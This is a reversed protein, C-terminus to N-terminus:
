ALHKPPGQIQEWVGGAHLAPVLLGCGRDGAEAGQLIGEGPGFLTELIFRVFHDNPTFQM